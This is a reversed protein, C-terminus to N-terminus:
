SEDTDGVIESEFSEIERRNRGRQFKETFSFCFEVRERSRGFRDVKM